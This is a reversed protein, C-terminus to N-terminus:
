DVSGIPVNLVLEGDRVPIRDGTQPPYATRLTREEDGVRYLVDFGLREKRIDYVTSCRQENVIFTNGQQVRQQIRNGAYGGAVAGAATAIKRGDGGGVQNGLVGGIVAGVITGTVQQPDQPPAQRTVAETRCEQRPVRVTKTIEKVQLVDAYPQEEVVPEEELLPAPPPAVAPVAPPKNAAVAPAGPKEFLSFGALAGGATALVAGVVLGIGMSRNLYMSRNMDAKRQEEDAMRLMSAFQHM